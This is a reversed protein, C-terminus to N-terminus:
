IAGRYGALIEKDSKPAEAKQGMFYLASAADLGGPRDILWPDIYKLPFLTVTAIGRIISRILSNVTFSLWFYQISWALAMGPGCCAGSDVEAFNRFLRRIGLHTFRTFDVGGGHVQQMFPIEAYIMGDPRLVRHIEAVCQAPDAVHELVAQAIVADFTNDEFPIDHADVVIQVLPTIAIDSYVFDVAAAAVADFGKGIVGAGIILITPRATKAQLLTIFKRYNEAAKWNRGIEPLRAAIQHKLAGRGFYITDGQGQRYTDLSLTSNAENILVPVGDVIPYREACTTNSCVLENGDHLLASHCCPCQLANILEASLRFTTKVTQRMTKTM